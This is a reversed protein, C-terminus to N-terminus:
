QTIVVNRIKHEAAAGGTGAGFGFWKYTTDWPTPSDYVMAPVTSGDLFVSVRSAGVLVRVARWTAGTFTKTSLSTLLTGSPGRLTIKNGMYIEFSLKLGTGDNVIGRDGGKPADQTLYKSTDKFFTMAFGDASSWQCATEPCGDDDDIIYEFDVMYPPVLAQELFIVGGRDNQNPTLIIENGSVLPYGTNAPSTDAVWHGGNWDFGGPLGTPLTPGPLAADITGIAADVGGIAADITGIAADIGGADITSAADVTSADVLAADAPPVAADAPGADVLAGDALAGDILSGDALSGDVTAADVSAADAAPDVGDSDDDDSSACGALLAASFACRLWNAITMYALGEYSLGVIWSLSCPRRMIRIAM